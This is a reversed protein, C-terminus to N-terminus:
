RSLRVREATLHAVMAQDAAIEENLEAIARDLSAVDEDLELVAIHAECEEREGRAAMRVVAQRFSLVGARRERRAAYQEIREILERLYQTVLRVPVGEDIDTFALRLLTRIPMQKHARVDARLQAISKDKPARHGIAETRAALLSATVQHAVSSVGVMGFRDAFTTPHEQTPSIATM